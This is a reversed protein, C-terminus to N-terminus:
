RARQVWFASFESSCADPLKQQGTRVAESLQQWSNCALFYGLSGGAYTESHAVLFVASTPTLSYEGGKKTLLGLSCLSDLLLRTPRIWWNKTSAIQEVTRCGNAIATFVDLQIAAKLIHARWGFGVLEYIQDPNPQKKDEKQHDKMEFLTM